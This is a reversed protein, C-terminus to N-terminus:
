RRQRFFRQLDCTGGAAFGEQEKVTQWLDHCACTPTEVKSRSQSLSYDRISELIAADCSGCNHAGREKGGGTPDCVVKRDLDACADLVEVVSWLWPSRYAWTRWLREVLTGKQINVPNISITDSQLAAHKATAISDEVAESETLFPPKLLVYSRLKAGSRKVTAAARDYDAVTMSKNISYRLVKDNASELGIAVEIDDNVTLIRTLSEDTVFEARSEVLVGIGRERCWGLVEKAADAPMEREDLFSGSTYVKLLEIEQMDKTAAAFQTSIDDASIGSESEINYGCMTCGGSVAHACGSTRLIVVAASAVKGDIHEREKWVAVPARADTKRRRRKQGRASFGSEDVSMAGDCRDRRKSTSM